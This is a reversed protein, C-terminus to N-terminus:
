TKKEEFSIVKKIRDIRNQIFLRSKSDSHERRKEISEIINIKDQLINEKDAYNESRNNLNNFEEIGIYGHPKQNKVKNKRYENIIEDVMKGKVVAHAHHKAIAFMKESTRGEVRLNPLFRRTVRALVSAFV